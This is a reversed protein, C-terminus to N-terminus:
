RLLARLEKAGRVPLKCVGNRCVYAIAEGKDSRKERLMPILKEASRAEADDLMCLVTNPLYRENVVARLAKTSDRDRDGIIVIERLGDAGAAVTALLAPYGRPFRELLTRLSKLGKEASTKFATDGTLDALRILFALAISNGSPTAGDYPDRTQAVLDKAFKPSDFFGGAEDEFLSTMHRAVARAESIWRPDGTAEFLDILSRGFFAYDALVGDFESEGDCWRRNLSGDKKRLKALVFRASGAAIEVLEPRDLTRGGRAFATIAMGNWAVICKHDLGPKVRLNRHDLLRRRADQWLAATEAPTKDITKAVSEWRQSVSLIQDGPEPAEHWNSEGVLGFRATVLAAAEKGLLKVVEPRKWVYYSGEVGGSDADYASFFGGEAHRFDRAVCHLIDAALDFYFRDGSVLGADLYTCAILAQDYLMKEFHPVLWEPDTSYRHFGGGVQDYVGGRAMQVLSHLAAKEYDPRGTLESTLFLLEHVSTRPFKPARGFGGHIKDHEKLFAEAAELALSVPPLEKSPEVKALRKVFDIVRDADALLAEPNEKWLGVIQELLKQFRDPPFYTGGFFPKKAATLWLSAPWGLNGQFARLSKMYVADVDPREERDVKVCVFHANLYAAIKENEFSEREMVHCWHCTSYGISLFIPVGRKKAEVFAAESWPWWDVPNHAHQQLYPSKEKALRNAPHKPKEIARAADGPRGAEDGQMSLVASSLCGILILAYAIRM